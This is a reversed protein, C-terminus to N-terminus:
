EGGEKALADIRACLMDYGFQGLEIRAEKLLADRAALDARAQVLVRCPTYDYDCYGLSREFNANVAALEARAEDRENCYKTCLDAAEQAVGDAEKRSAALDARLREILDITNEVVEPRIKTTGDMLVTVRTGKLARVVPCDALAFHDKLENRNQFPNTPDSM